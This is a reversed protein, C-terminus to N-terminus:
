RGTPKVTRITPDFVGTEERPRAGGEARRLIVLEMEWGAGPTSAALAEGSIREGRTVLLFPFIWGGEPRPLGKGMRWGSIAYGKSTLNELMFVIVDRVGPDATEVRGEVLGDLFDRTANVAAGREGVTRSLDELPGLKFDEPTLTELPRNGM